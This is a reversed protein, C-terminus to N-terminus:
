EVIIVGEQSPNLHDHYGYTGTRTATFSKSQGARITDVNLESNDTHAPHPDSDFQITRNSDNKVTVTEGSNVTLTKPSFNNGNYTLTLGSQNQPTSSPLQQESESNASDSSGQANNSNSMEYESILLYAGAGLIVVVLGVIIKQM